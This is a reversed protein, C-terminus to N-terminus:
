CRDAGSSRRPEGAWAPIARAAGEPATAPSPNGRGRPSASYSRPLAPMCRRMRVRTHMNRCPPGATRSGGCGGAVAARSSRRRYGSRCGAGTPGCTLGPFAYRASRMAAARCTQLLRRHRCEQLRCTSCARSCRVGATPNHEEHRWSGKSSAGSGSRRACCCRRRGAARRAFRSGGRRWCRRWRRM